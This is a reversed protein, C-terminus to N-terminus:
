LCVEKEFDEHLKGNGYIINDILKYNLLGCVLYVILYTTGCCLYM